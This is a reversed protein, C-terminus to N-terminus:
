NAPNHHRTPWMRIARRRCNTRARGFVRLGIIGEKTNREKGEHGKTDILKGLLLALACSKLRNMGRRRSTESYLSSDNVIEDEYQYKAKKRKRRMLEM